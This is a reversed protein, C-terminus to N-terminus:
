VSIVIGVLRAIGVLNAGSVVATVLTTVVVGVGLTGILGLSRLTRPVFGPRATVAVSWVQNMANQAANAVGLGGYLSTLLGVVLAIGNGGLSHVNRAIQDGIIPFDALASDIIDQQLDPHGHLVFGLVSVLVLLLPFLSLFAYHTLLAG